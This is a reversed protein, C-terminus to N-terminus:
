VCEGKGVGWDLNAGTQWEPHGHEQDRTGDCTSFSERCALLVRGQLLKPQSAEPGPRAQRSSWGQTQIGWELQHVPTGGQRARITESRIHPLSALPPGRVGLVVGSHRSQRSKPRSLPRTEEEHWAAWVWGRTVRLPCGKGSDPPFAGALPIRAQPCQRHPLKKHLLPLHRPHLM